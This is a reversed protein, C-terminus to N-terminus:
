SSMFDVPLFLTTYYRLMLYTQAHLPGSCFFTPDTGASVTCKNQGNFLVLDLLIRCARRLLPAM